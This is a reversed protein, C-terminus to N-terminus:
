SYNHMSRSTYSEPVVSVSSQIMQNAAGFMSVTSIRGEVMQYQDQTYVSSLDALMLHVIYGPNNSM